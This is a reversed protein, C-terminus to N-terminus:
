LLCGGTTCSQGNSEWPIATGTIGRVDTIFGVEDTSGLIVVDAGPTVDVFSVPGNYLTIELITDFGSPNSVFVTVPEGSTPLGSLNFAYTQYGPDSGQTTVSGGTTNAGGYCISCASGAAAKRIADLHASVSSPLDSPAVPKGLMRLNYAQQTQAQTAPMPSATNGGSCAALGVLVLLGSAKGVIAASIRM